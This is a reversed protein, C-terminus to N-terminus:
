RCDRYNLHKGHQETFLGVEREAAKRADVASDFDTYWGLHRTTGEVGIQAHWRRNKADYCVGTVGSKNRASKQKNCHNERNTVERLNCLRNDFRIQNIHDIQQEPWTGHVIAWIVRHASLMKDKYRGVKYGNSSATFAEKGAFM